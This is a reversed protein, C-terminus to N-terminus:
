GETRDPIALGIVLRLQAGDNPRAAHDHTGGALSSSRDGSQVVLLKV